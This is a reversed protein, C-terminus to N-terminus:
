RHHSLSGSKEAALSSEIKAVALSSESECAVASYEVKAAAFLIGKVVSTHHKITIHLSIIHIYAPTIHHSTIHHSTSTIQHSSPHSAIIHHIHSTACRFFACFIIV